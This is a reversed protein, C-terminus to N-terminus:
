GCNKDLDHGTERWNMIGGELEIVNKFGANRMQMLAEASRKGSRCYVLYSGNKDLEAIKDLFDSSKVDINKAGSVCRSKFEDPTGVDIITLDSSNDALLFQEVEDPTKTSNEGVMLVDAKMDSSPACGALISASLVLAILLKIKKM